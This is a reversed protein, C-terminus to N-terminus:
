QKDRHHYFLLAVVLIGVGFALSLSWVLQFGRRLDFINPATNFSSVFWFVFFFAGVATLLGIGFIFNKSM